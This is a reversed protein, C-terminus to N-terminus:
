KLPYVLKKGSVKDNKLDDLGQHISELGGSRVEPRHVKIQGSAFLPTSKEWFIKAFEHDDKNASIPHGFYNIDKGTITYARTEQVEIGDRSFENPLLVSIKGGNPMSDACIEMSGNGTICDFALKLEGKTYDKIAAAVNEDKYNFAKEAGLSQLHEANHPSCTTIVRAGSLKGYQIALSGTATSGGYVLLWPKSGQSTAAADWPLPLKLSQYLSQGVTSVGVGLTCAEEDSLGDPVRMQADGVVVAYEGFAGDEQDLVNCGHVFGAIRDGAKFQKTVGPGVEVVTGAYDNGVTSGKPGVWAIHKWDTPNLAVANVKVLIHGPRVKPVAVTKVEAKGQEVCKYAKMETPAM